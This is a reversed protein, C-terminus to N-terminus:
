RSIQNGTVLGVGCLKLLLDGLEDWPNLLSIGKVAQDVVRLREFQEWLVPSELRRLARGVLEKRHFLIRSSQLVTAAPEGNDIRASMGILTGLENNVAGVIALPAVDENRLGQLVRLTRQADGALAADILTFVSYRSSDAVTQLVTKVDLEITGGDDANALLKLKEIEQVAALLNGEIKDVLLQLAEPTAKIGQQLLRHAMWDPMEKVNLPWVQILGMGAELTKFWKTNQTASELRPSTVLIVYDPNPSELYAQLAQRGSEDLTATSLRLDFLKHEAFLSLNGTSNTFKLWDFGRDVSFVERDLFGRQRCSARIQDAAEQNLLPEDGAVWYIPLSNQKLHRALEQSKLKM